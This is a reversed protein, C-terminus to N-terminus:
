KPIEIRMETGPADPSSSAPAPNFKPAEGGGSKPAESGGAKSAEGSNFRPAEGGGGFKPAESGSDVDLRTSTGDPLRVTLLAIGWQGAVRRAQVQVDARGKPGAIPFVIDARGRDGEVSMSGSPIWRAARVPEGLREAIKPDQKVQKMAMQYPESSKLALDNGFYAYGAILAGAVIVALVLLLVRWKRTRRPSAPQPTSQNADM